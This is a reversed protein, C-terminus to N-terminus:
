AELPEDQHSKHRGFAPEADFGPDVNNADGKQQVFNGFFLHSLRFSAPESLEYM